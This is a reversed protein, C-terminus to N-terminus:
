KRLPLLLEPSDSSIQRGREYFRYLALTIQSIALIWLVLDLRNLLAGLGIFLAFEAEDVFFITRNMHLFNKIKGNATSRNKQYMEEINLELQKRKQSSKDLYEKDRNVQTFLTELKIYYRWLFFFCAIFGLYIYLVEQSQKYVAYSLSATIIFIKLVDLSKDLFDGIKSSLQRARAVQGDLDDGLFGLPILIGAIILHNPYNLFLSLSGLTYSAFALLTIVNPTLFKIKTVVPLLRFALPYGFLDGWNSYYTNKVVNKSIDTHKM